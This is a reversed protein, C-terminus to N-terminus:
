VMKIRFAVSKKGEPLNKGQYVDFVEVDRVENVAKVAELVSGFDKDADVVFCLDRWIIQDQLTEYHYSHEETNALCKVVTSISLSIYAVGSTEGIKWNQL